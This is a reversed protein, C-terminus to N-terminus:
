QTVAFSLENRSQSLEAKGKVIKEELQDIEKKYKPENAQFEEKLKKLSENTTESGARENNM